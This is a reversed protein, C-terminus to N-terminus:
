WVQSAKARWSFKFSKYNPISPTSIWKTKDRKLNHLSISDIIALLHDAWTMACGLNINEIEFQISQQFICKEIKCFYFQSCSCRDSHSIFKTFCHLKAVRIFYCWFWLVNRNEGLQHYPDHRNRFLCKVGEKLSFRPLLLKYNQASIPVLFIQIFMDILINKVVNVMTINNIDM